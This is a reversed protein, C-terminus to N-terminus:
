TRPMTSQLEIYLIEAPLLVKGFASFNTFRILHRGLGSHVCVIVSAVLTSTFFTGALIVYDDAGSTNRAVRRPAFPLAVAVYAIALSLALSVILKAQREDVIHATQYDIESIPLSM